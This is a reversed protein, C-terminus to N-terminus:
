KFVVGYGNVRILASTIYREYDTLFGNTFQQHWSFLIPNLGPLPNANIQPRPFLPTARYTNLTTEIIRAKEQASIPPIQQFKGFDVPAISQFINHLISKICGVTRRFIKQHNGFADVCDFDGAATFINDIIDNIYFRAISSTEIFHRLRRDGGKKLETNNHEYNKKVIIGTDVFFPFCAYKIQTVHPIRNLLNYDVNILGCSEEFLERAATRSLVDPIAKDIKGGFDEYMFKNAAYRMAGKILVIAWENRGKANNYKEFLLVGAGSYMQEVLGIKVKVDVGAKQLNKENLYKNKYKLYKEKYLDTM